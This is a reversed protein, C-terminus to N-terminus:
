KLIVRGYSTESSLIRAPEFIFITCDNLFIAIGFDNEHFETFFRALRNKKVRPELYYSVCWNCKNCCVITM